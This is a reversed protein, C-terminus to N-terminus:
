RRALTATILPNGMAELEKLINKPTAPHLAICGLLHEADGRLDSNTSQMGCKLLAVIQDKKSNGLKKWSLKEKFNENLEAEVDFEEQDANDCATEVIVDEALDTLNVGYKERYEEQTDYSYFHALAPAYLESLSEYNYIVEDWSDGFNVLLEAARDYEITQNTNIWIRDEYGHLVGGVSWGDDFDSNEFEEGLTEHSIFLDMVRYGNRFTLQFGDVGVLETWLARHLFESKVLQFLNLENIEVKAEKYDEDIASFPHGQAAIAKLLSKDITPQTTSEAFWGNTSSYGSTSRPSAIPFLSSTPLYPQEAAPTNLKPYGMLALTARQENTLFPNTALVSGATQEKGYRDIQKDMYKKFVTDVCTDPLRAGRLIHNAIFSIEEAKKKKLESLLLNEIEPTDVALYYRAWMSAIEETSKSIVLLRKAGVNPNHVMWSYYETQNEAILIDFISVDFNPHRLISGYMYSGQNSAQYKEYLATLAWTPTNAFDTIANALGKELFIEYIQKELSPKSALLSDIFPDRDMM